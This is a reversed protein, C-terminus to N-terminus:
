MHQTYVLMYINVYVLRHIMNNIHIDLGLYSNAVVAAQQLHTCRPGLQPAVQAQAAEIRTLIVKSQAAQIPRQLHRSILLGRVYPIYTYASNHEQKQM